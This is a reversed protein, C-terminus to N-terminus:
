KNNIINLFVFKILLPIRSIRKPEEIIRYFWELGNKQMWKPARKIRGAFFDLTGGVGIYIASPIQSFNDSIWKEQKPAGFAVLVIDPKTKKLGSIIEYDTGQDKWKGFNAGVVQLKPYKKILRRKTDIAVGPAGGLLYLKWSRKESLAILAQCFDVGTIREIIPTKRRKAAWLVGAGDALSLYASNLVKQYSRNSYAKTIIEPNPTVVMVKKRKDIMKEVMGLAQLFRLNDIKTGLINVKNINM